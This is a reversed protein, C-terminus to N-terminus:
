KKLTIAHRELKEKPAFLSNLGDVVLSEYDSLYSLEKKLAEFGVKWYEVWIYPRCKRITRTAGQLAAIEFGEVDLKFFDLRELNIDDLKLTQVNDHDVVIDYLNTEKELQNISVVGFDQNKSYDISPLSAIGNINGLGIRNIRVNDLENLAITGALGNFIEKQPEFSILLGNKHKVRQAVPVTFFGANAGGDVIICNPELKDIITFINKLESEIHTHGTKLLAESQYDCHRNLLFDGYVSDIIVFNRYKKM